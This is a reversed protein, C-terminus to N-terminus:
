GGKCQKKRIAATVAAGTKEISIDLSESELWPPVHACLLRLEIFPTTDLFDRLAQKSTIEPFTEQLRDLDLQYVGPTETEVPQTPIVEVGDEDSLSENMDDLIGDLTEPSCSEIEFVSFGRSDLERFLVGSISAGAAVRCGGLLDLTKRIEARLSSLDLDASINVYYRSIENWGANSKEFVIVTTIVTSSTSKTYGRMFVAIQASM